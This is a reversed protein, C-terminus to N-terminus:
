TISYTPHGSAGKKSRTNKILVPLMASISMWQAKVLRCWLNQSTINNVSVM